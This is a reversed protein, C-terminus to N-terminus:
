ATTSVLTGTLQGQANIVPAPAPTAPSASASAAPSAAPLAPAAAAEAPAQREVVQGLFEGLQQTSRAVSDLYAVGQRARGADDKAQDSQVTLARANESAQAASRRAAQAQADLARAAQEAQAAARRADQVRLQQFGSRVASDISSSSSITAVFTKRVNAQGQM